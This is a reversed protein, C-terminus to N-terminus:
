DAGQNLIICLFEFPEDYPNRFQHKEKNNIFLCDGETVMVEKGSDKVVIGRGKEIRVVHEFDHTHHPTFGGPAITFRRLVINDSGDDPGILVKKQVDRLDEGELHISKIDKDKKIIM